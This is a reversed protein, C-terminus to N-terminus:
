VLRTGILVTNVIIAYSWSITLALPVLAGYEDPLLPRLIAAIALAGGKLALLGPVGFTSLLALAIPNREVLGLQFGYVTLGFDVLLMGVVLIWLEREKANIVRWLRTIAGRVPGPDDISRNPVKRNKM